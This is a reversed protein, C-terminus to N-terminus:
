NSAYGAAKFFNWCEDPSFLACIDGLAAWLAEFTRTAAGRLHAKLGRLHAKLKAFANEIPNLDPSYQPLFLFWAGRAKLAKAACASKHISLNDAIVVDARQLTPALQTEVYANFATRDMAGDVVWPATLGDCRLGAIFTQTGWRGFPAAARLREGRRSRGRLRTMKTNVATEDIFVLRAPQLRMRPQRKEIWERRRERVDARERETAM